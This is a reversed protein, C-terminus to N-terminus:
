KYNYKTKTKLIHEYRRAQQIPMVTYKVYKIKGRLNRKTPHVSYVDDQYYSQLRHRLGAYKGRKAVGTYIVHKHGDLLRYLGSHNPVKGKRINDPIFKITRTEM